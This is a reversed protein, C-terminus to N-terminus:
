ELDPMEAKSLATQSVIEHRNRHPDYLLATVVAREKLASDYNM